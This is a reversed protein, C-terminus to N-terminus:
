PTHVKLKEVHDSGTQGPAAPSAPPSAPKGPPAETPKQTPASSRQGTGMRDKGSSALSSELRRLDMGDKVDAAIWTVVAVAAVAEPTLAEGLRYKEVLAKGATILTEKVGPPAAAGQRAEAALETDVAGLQRRCIQKVQWERRDMRAQEVASIATTLAEEVFAPSPSWGPLADAAGHDVVPSEEGGPVLRFGNAAAWARAEEAATKRGGRNRAPAVSAQDSGAAGADAAAVAGAMAAAAGNGEGPAPNAPSPAMVPSEHNAM